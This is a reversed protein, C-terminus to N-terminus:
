MSLFGEQNSLALGQPFTVANPPPPPLFFHPSLRCLLGFIARKRSVRGIIILLNVFFLPGLIARKQPELQSPCLLRMERSPTTECLEVRIQHHRVAASSRLNRPPLPEFRYSHKNSKQHPASASPAASRNPAPPKPTSRSSATKRPPIP